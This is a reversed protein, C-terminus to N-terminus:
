RRPPPTGHGPPPEGGGPTDPRWGYNDNEVRTKQFIYHFIGDEVRKKVGAPVLRAVARAAGVALEAVRLAASGGANNPEAV